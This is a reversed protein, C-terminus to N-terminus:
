PLGMRWSFEPLLYMSVTKTCSFGHTKVALPASNTPHISRGTREKSPFSLKDTWLASICTAGPGGLVIACSCSGMGSFWLLTSTTLILPWVKPRYKWMKLHGSPATTRATQAVLWKLFTHTHPATETFIVLLYNSLLRATAHLASLVRDQTVEWTFALFPASGMGCHGTILARSTCGAFVAVM